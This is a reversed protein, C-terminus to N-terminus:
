KEEKLAKITATMLKKHFSANKTNKAVSNYELAEHLFVDRMTNISLKFFEDFRDLVDKKWKVLDVTVKESLKPIESLKHQAVKSFISMLFLDGTNLFSYNNIEIEEIELYKLIDDNNSNRKYKRYDSIKDMIKNYVEFAIIVREADINNLIKEINKEDFLKAKNSKATPALDEYFTAQLQIAHDLTIVKSEGVGLLNLKENRKLRKKMLDIKNAQREFLYGKSNIDEELSRIISLNSILYSDKIETQSNLYISINQKIVPDNVEIITLPVLGEKLEGAKKAELISNMTQCGNVAMPNQIEIMKKMDNYKVSNSVIVIGNNYLHFNEAETGSATGVIGKNFKNEIGHFLRVNEDFIKDGHEECIDAISSLESYISYTTAGESMLVGTGSARQQLQISFNSNKKNIEYVKETLYKRDHLTWTISNGSNKIQELNMEKTYAATESLGDTYSVFILNYSFINSENIENIKNELENNANPPVIGSSCIRYGKFFSDLDSQSVTSTINKEKDPFKFQYLNICANNEDIIVADIGWDNHGDTILEGVSEESEDEFNSLYWHAFSHSRRKYNYKATILDLEKNIKKYYSNYLGVYEKELIKNM